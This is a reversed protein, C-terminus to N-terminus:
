QSSIIKQQVAYWSSIGNTLVAGIFSVSVLFCFFCLSPIFFVPAPSSHYYIDGKVAFLATHHTFIAILISSCVIQVGTNIDTKHQKHLTLYLGSYKVTSHQGCDKSEPWTPESTLIFVMIKHIVESEERRNINRYCAPRMETSHLNVQASFYLLWKYYPNPATKKLLRWNDCNFSFKRDQATNDCQDNALSSTHNLSTSVTLDTWM